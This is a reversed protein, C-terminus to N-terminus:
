PRKFPRIPDSPTVIEGHWTVGKNPWSDARDINDLGKHKRELHIRYMDELQKGSISVCAVTRGGEELPADCHPMIDFTLQYGGEPAGSWGSFHIHETCTNACSEYVGLAAAM